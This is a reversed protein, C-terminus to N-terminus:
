RAAKKSTGGSWRLQLGFSTFRLKDATVSGMPYRFFPELALRNNQLPYSIGLGLYLATGFSWRGKRTQDTVSSIDEVTQTSVVVPGGETETVTTIVRQNKYTYDAIQGVSGQLSIGGTAVIGLMGFSGIGYRLHLPMELNLWHHQARQLQPIGGALPTIGPKIDLSQRGVYIGTSFDLHPGVPLDMMGGLAYNIKLQTEAAHNSQQALGIGYRIARVTRIGDNLEQPIGGVYLKHFNVTYFRAPEPVLFTARSATEAMGSKEIDEDINLWLYDEKATNEGLGRNRQLSFRNGSKPSLGGPNDNERTRVHKSEAINRGPAGGGDKRHLGDSVPLKKERGAVPDRSGIVEKGGTLAKTRKNGSLLRKTGLGIGILLMLGAAIRMWYFLPRRERKKEARFKEFDEWADPQYSTAYERLRSIMDSDIPEQDSM